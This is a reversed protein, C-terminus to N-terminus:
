LSKLRCKLSVVVLYDFLFNYFFYAWNGPELVAWLLYVVGLSLLHHFHSAVSKRIIELIIWRYSFLIFYLFFLNQSFLVGIWFLYFIAWEIPACVVFSGFFLPFLPYVGGMVGLAGIGLAAIFIKYTGSRQLRSFIQM